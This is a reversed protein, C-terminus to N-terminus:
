QYLKIIVVNKNNTLESCGRNETRNEIKMSRM